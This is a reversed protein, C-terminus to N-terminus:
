PYYHMRGVVVIAGLLIRKELRDINRPVRWHKRRVSLRDIEECSIVRLENEVGWRSVLRVFDAKSTALCLANTFAGRRRVGRVQQIGACKVEILGIWVDRRSGSMVIVAAVM